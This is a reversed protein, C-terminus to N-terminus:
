GEECGGDVEGDGRKGGLGESVDEVGDTGICGDMVESEGGASGEVKGCFLIRAGGDTQFVDCLDEM